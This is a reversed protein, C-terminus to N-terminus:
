TRALPIHATTFHADEPDKGHLSATQVLYIHEEVKRHALTLMHTDAEVKWWASLPITFCCPPFHRAGSTVEHALEGIPETGAGTVTTNRKIGTMKSKM